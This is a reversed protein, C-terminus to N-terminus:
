DGTRSYLHVRGGVGGAAIISGDRSHAVSVLAGENVLAPESLPLGTNTSFVQVYGPSNRDGGAITIEQENPHAAVANARLPKQDAPLIPARLRRGTLNAVDLFASDLIGISKSAPMWILARPFPGSTEFRGIEGSSELANVLAEVVHPSRGTRPHNANELAVELGARPDDNLLNRTREVLERSTALDRQEEAIGQQEKARKEAVQALKTQAEAKDKQRRAEEGQRLAENRQRTADDRQRSAEQRQDIAENRQVWAFVTSALLITTIGTMLLRLNRNARRHHFNRQAGGLIHDSAILSNEDELWLNDSKFMKWFDSKEAAGKEGGVVIPIIDRGTKSFIEVEQRVWTSTGVEPSVIVILVKSHKLARVLRPTLPQGPTADADDLFCRFDAAALAKALSAAYPSADSRRYSIFFDYGVLRTWDFRM